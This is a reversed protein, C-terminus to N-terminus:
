QSRQKACSSRRCARLQCHPTERVGNAKVIRGELARVAAIHQHDAGVRCGPQISDQAGHAAIARVRRAHEGPHHIARRTGGGRLHFSISRAPRLGISACASSARKAM